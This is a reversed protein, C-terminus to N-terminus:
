KWEWAKVCYSTDKNMEAECICIVSNLRSLKPSQTRCFVAGRFSSLPSLGKPITIGSITFTVTDGDKTLLTTGKWTNCENLEPKSVHTLTTSCEIGFLVGQEQLTLETTGYEDLVRMGKVKGKAEYILDGLM